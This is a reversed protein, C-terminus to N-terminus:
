RVEVTFAKDAGVTVSTTIKITDTTIINRNVLIRSDASEAYGSQSFIAKGNANLIDIQYTAGSGNISPATVILESTLGAQTINASINTTTNLVTMSYTTPVLPKVNALATKVADLDTTLRRLKASVTGAAGAAVVADAIAGETVDAGDAITKLPGTQRDAVILRNAYVMVELVLPKKPENGAAGGGDKPLSVQLVAVQTFVANLLLFPILIVMLNMFSTIDLDADTGRRKRSSM